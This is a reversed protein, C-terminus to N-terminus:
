IPKVLKNLFTEDNKLKTIVEKAITNCTNADLTLTYADTNIVESNITIPSAETLTVAEDPIKELLISVYENLKQTKYEEDLNILSDLISSKVGEKVKKRIEAYAKPFLEKFSEFYSLSMNLSYVDQSKTILNLSLYIASNTGMRFNNFEMLFGSEELNEKIFIKESLRIVNPNCFVEKRFMDGAISWTPYTCKGVIPDLKAVGQSFSRLIMGKNEKLLNLFEDSNNIVKM